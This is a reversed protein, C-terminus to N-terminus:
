EIVVVDDSVLSAANFGPPLLSSPADDMALSEANFGAPLLSSPVDEDTVAPTKFVGISKIAESVSKARGQGPKRFSSVRGRSLSAPRVRGSPRVPTRPVIDDAVAPTRLAGSPKVVRGLPKARGSPRVPEQPGSPRVRRVASPNKPAEVTEIGVRGDAPRDVLDVPGAPFFDPIPEPSKAPTPRQRRGLGNPVQPKDEQVIVPSQAPVPRRAGHNRGLPTFGPPNVDKQSEQQSQLALKEAFGPYDDYYTGCEPVKSPSECIKTDLSFVKGLDCAAKRPISRNICIYFKRCDYDDAHLTHAVAQGANDQPDNPCVFGGEEAAVREVICGTRGSQAPWTCGKTILSYQLGAPCSTYSYKNYTCTVFKTCINLEPYPYLGNKRDCPFTGSEPQLYIRNGCDVNEMTDCPESSVTKLRDDYVLGDDCLKYTAVGEDCSWYLDCQEPDAFVGYPEPCTFNLVVEEVYDQSDYQQEEQANFQQAKVSILFLIAATITIVRIM